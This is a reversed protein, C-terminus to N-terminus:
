LCVMKGCGIGDSEVIPLKSSENLTFFIRFNKLIDLVETACVNFRIALDTPKLLFCLPTNPPLKRHEM